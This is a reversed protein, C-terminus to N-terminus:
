APASGAKAAKAAAREAAKAAKKADRAAAKAAEKAAKAAAERARRATYAEETEVSPRSLYTTKIGPGGGRPAYVEHADVTADMVYVTGETLPDASTTWTFANGTDDTLIHIHRMGYIGERSVVRAATMRLGKLREKIQGQFTSIEAQRALREAVLKQALERQYGKPIYAAFGIMRRTVYGARAIAGLNAMFNDSDGEEGIPIARAWQLAAKGMEVDEPLVTIKDSPNKPELGFLVRLSTSAIRSEEAVARSIFGEQRISAAAMALVTLIGFGEGRSPGAGFEEDWGADALVAEIEADIAFMSALATPSMLGGTFEMVCTSGVQKYAGSKIERVVYTRRRRRAARCHDCDPKAAQFTRPINEIERLLALPAGDEGELHEIQATFVYGAACPATGTVTIDAVEAATDTGERPQFRTESVTWTIEQGHKAAKAALSTLGKVLLSLNGTYVTKTTTKTM